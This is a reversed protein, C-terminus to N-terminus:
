NMTGGCHCSYCPAFGTMKRPPGFAVHNIQTADVIHAIREGELLARAAPHDMAKYGGRLTEEFRNSAGHVAAAHMREGDFLELAAHEVGCVRQAKDLIADFVPTLDGPSSNIVQLVEATATERGLAEALDRERHSLKADREALQRRLEAIERELDGAREDLVTM